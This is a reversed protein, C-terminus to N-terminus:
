ADIIFRIAIYCAASKRLYTRNLPGVGVVRHGTFLSVCEFIKLISEAEFLIHDKSTFDVKTM